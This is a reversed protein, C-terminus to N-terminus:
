ICALLFTEPQVQITKKKKKNEECAFCVGTAAGAQLFCLASKAQSESVRSVRSEGENGEGQTAPAGLASPSGSVWKEHQSKHEVNHLNWLRGCVMLLCSCCFNDEMIPHAKQQYLQRQTPGLGHSYSM